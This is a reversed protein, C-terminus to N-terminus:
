RLRMTLRSSSLISKMGVFARSSAQIRRSTTDGERGTSTVQVGLYKVEQQYALPTNDISVPYQTGDVGTWLITRLRNMAAPTRVAANADVGIDQDRRVEALVLRRIM